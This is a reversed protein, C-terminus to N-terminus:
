MSYGTSQSLSTGSSGLDALPGGSFHFYLTLRYSQQAGQARLGEIAKRAPPMMRGLRHSRRLRELRLHCTAAAKSAAQEQEKQLTERREREQSQAWQTAVHPRKRQRVKQATEAAEKAKADAKDKEAKLRLNTFIGTSKRDLPAKLKALEDELQKIRKELAAIKAKYAKASCAIPATRCRSATRGEGAGRAVQLYPTREM